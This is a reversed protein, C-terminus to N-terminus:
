VYLPTKLPVDLGRTSNYIIGLVHIYMNWSHNLPTTKSVANSLLQILNKARTRVTDQFSLWQKGFFMFDQVDIRGLEEAPYIGSGM